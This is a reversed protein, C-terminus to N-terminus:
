FAFQLFEMGDGDIDGVSDRKLEIELIFLDNQDIDPM